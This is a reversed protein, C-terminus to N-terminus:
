RPNMFPVARGPRCSLTRGAFDANPCFYDANAFVKRWLDLGRLLECREQAHSRLPNDCVRTYKTPVDRFFGHRLHARAGSPLGKAIPCRGIEADTCRANRM